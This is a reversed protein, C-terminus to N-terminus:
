SAHNAGASRPLVEELQPQWNTIVESVLLVFYRMIASENKFILIMGKQLTQFELGDTKEGHNKADIIVRVYLVGTLFFALCVFGFVLYCKQSKIRCLFYIINPINNIYNMTTTIFQKQYDM